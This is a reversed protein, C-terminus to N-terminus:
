GVVLQGEQVLQVQKEQRAMEEDLAQIHRELEEPTLKFIYGFQQFKQWLSDDEPKYKDLGLAQRELRIGTVIGMLAQYFNTPTKGSNVAELGKGQFLKGEKAHRAKVDAISEGLKEPLKQHVQLATEKRLEQWRDQVARKVVARKSVGYRNAIDEYSLTEDKLYDAVAKSWNIKM